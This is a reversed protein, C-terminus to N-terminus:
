FRHHRRECMGRDATPKSKKRQKLKRDLRPKMKPTRERDRQKGPAGSLSEKDDGRFSMDDM